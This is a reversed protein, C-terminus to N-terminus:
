RLARAAALIVMWGCASVLVVTGLALLRDVKTRHEPWNEDQLSLAYELPLNRSQLREEGADSIAMGARMRSEILLLLLREDM